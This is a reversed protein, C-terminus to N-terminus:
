GVEPHTATLFAIPSWSVPPGGYADTTRGPVCCHWHEGIGSTPSKSGAGFSLAIARRHDRRRRWSEWRSLSWPPYSIALSPRPIWRHATMTTRRGRRRRRSMLRTGNGADGLPTTVTLPITARHGCNRSRRSDPAPSRGPSKNRTPMRATPIATFTRTIDRHRDAASDPDPFPRTRRRRQEPSGTEGHREYGMGGPTGVRGLSRRRIGDFARGICDTSPSTNRSRM